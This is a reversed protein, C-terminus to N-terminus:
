AKVSQWGLEAALAYRPHEQPICVKNPSNPARFITYNPLSFDIQTHTIEAQIIPRYHAIIKAAGQLVQNEAGEADIKLFDFRTLKEWAFLDDLAVVLSSLAQATSDHKLLSFEHPKASNMWLTSTETKAGACFNRIRLNTFQNEKASKFLVALVDPFPELALVTGTGALHQAAKISYIGTNAGVDIMVSEPALFKTFHKYEPEIDDRWVYIGRGGFGAKNQGYVIAGNSLRTKLLHTRPSLAVRIKRLFETM